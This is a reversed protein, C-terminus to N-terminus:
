EDMRVHLKRGQFVADVGEKSISKIKVGEIKDGVHVVKDNIIAQPESGGWVIGKLQLVPPNFAAKHVTSVAKGILPVPELNPGNDLNKLPEEVHTQIIKESSLEPMQVLFPDRLSMFDPLVSGAAEAPQAEPAQKQEEQARLVGPLVLVAVLLRLFVVPKNKM